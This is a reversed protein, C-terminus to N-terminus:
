GKPMLNAPVKLDRGIDSKYISLATQRDSEELSPYIATLFAEDINRLAITYKAWRILGRVSMTSSSQNSKYLSRLSNAFKIIEGFPVDMAPNSNVREKLIKLEVEPSAYDCQVSLWRDRTSANTRNTANFMGDREVKGGTNSTLFIRHAPNPQYVWEKIESVAKALDTMLAGKPAWTFPKHSELFGNLALQVDSKLADYENVVLVAGLKRAILAPGDVRVVEGGRLSDRSFIDETTSHSNAEYSIMPLRLLACFATLRDTKGCGAPGFLHVPEGNWWHILLARVEDQTFQYNLPKPILPNRDAVEKRLIRVVQLGPSTAAPFQPINFLEHVKVVEYNPDNADIHANIITTVNTM